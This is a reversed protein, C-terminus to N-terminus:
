RATLKAIEVLVDVMKEMSQVPIYERESHFNHGGTSLNPCPLGRHSLEVGDTGGRIPVVTPNIGCKCFAEKANEILFMHPNIIEKMNRYSDRIQVKVADKYKKNIFEAAAILLSKKKNYQEEDHDRIIYTLEAKDTNGELYMLHYFGEYGETNEPRQDQPIMSDYEMALRLANIMIGKAYGPHINNGTIVVDASGANFNEYEIEGIAGGDVTYAYDVGFGEIDFFDIGGSTEEDPTFAICIKGHPISPNNILIEAMTMIEAIGAKDDAGLLSNGDTVIIDEGIYNKLDTYEDPSLTKNNGLSIINGQYEKIIKANKADGSLGPATDMHSIFGLSYKQDTNAPIEAYVFCHNEDLRVNEIGMESLEDRLIKALVWQNTCSPITESEDDSETDISIYKLFREVVRNM